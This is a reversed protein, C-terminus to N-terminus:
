DYCPTHTEYSDLDWSSICKDSVFVYPFKLRKNLFAINQLSFQVLEHQIYNM